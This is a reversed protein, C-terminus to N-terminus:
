YTLVVALYEDLNQELQDYLLPADVYPVVHTRISSLQLAGGCVEFVCPVDLKRQEPSVTHEHAGIVTLGKLHIDTYPDIEMTNRPSGLLVVRGGRAAVKLCASINSEIGAAEIVLDPAAAPNAAYWEELSQAGLNITECGFQKARQLRGASYDAAAVDAGAIRYLQACLIGVLGLGSVLVKEGLASPARRISTMAIQALGFFVADEAAVGAPVLRCCEAAVVSATSHPSPHWVLDGAKLETVDKGTEEVIGVSAYGPYFPYKVWNAMRGGTAFARHRHRLVALETGPSILSALNRVRVEAPGAQPLTFSEIKCIDQAEFIVRQEKPM